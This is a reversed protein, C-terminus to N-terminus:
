SEKIKKKANVFANIRESWNLLLGKLTKYEMVEYDSAKMAVIKDLLIEMKRMVDRLIEQGVDSQMANYFPQNKGLLSLTKVGKKGHIALFKQVSAADLKEDGPWKLPNAM